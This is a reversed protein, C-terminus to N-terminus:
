HLQAVTTLSSPLHQKSFDHSIKVCRDGRSPKRIASLWQQTLRNNHKSILSLKLVKEDVLSRRHYQNYNDTLSSQEVHNGAIKNLNIHLM